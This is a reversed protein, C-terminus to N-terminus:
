EIVQRNEPSGDGIHKHLLEAKYGTVIAVDQIGAQAFSELTYDIMPKGLVSVLPKPKDLTLPALRDGDGAALIVGKVVM